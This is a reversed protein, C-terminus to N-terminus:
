GQHPAAASAVHETAAEITPFIPLKRDLGLLTITHQTGRQARAFALRGGRRDLRMGVKVLTGLGASNIFTVSALDLVIGQVDAALHDLLEREFAPLTRETIEVPPVVVIVRVETM